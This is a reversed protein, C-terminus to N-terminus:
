VDLRETLSITIFYLNIAQAKNKGV